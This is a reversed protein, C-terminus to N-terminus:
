GRPAGGRPGRGRPGGPGRSEGRPGRRDDRGDRREPRPPAPPRQAEWAAIEARITALLGDLQDEAIGKLACFNAKTLTTHEYDRVLSFRQRRADDEAARREQVIAKRRALEDRAAQRHEETLEGAPQGDLDYRHTAKALALLYSTHTTHRHLFISLAKKTFVGPARQQIDAQIRLKIPRAQDGFLAPFRQRLERTCANLSMEPAKPAQPAPAEAAETLVASAAESVREDVVEHVDGQVAEHVAEAPTVAAPPEVPSASDGPQPHETSM